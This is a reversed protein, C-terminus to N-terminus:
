RAVVRLRLRHMVVLDPYYRGPVVIDTWDALVLIGM